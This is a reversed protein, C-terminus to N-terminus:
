RIKFKKRPGPADNAEEIIWGGRDREVHCLYYATKDKIPNFLSRVIGAPEMISGWGVIEYLDASQPCNRLLVNYPGPEFSVFLDGERSRGRCKWTVTSECEKLTGASFCRVLGRKYIRITRHKEVDEQSPKRPNLDHDTINEAWFTHLTEVKRYWAPDRYTLTGWEKGYLVLPRASSSQGLISSSAIDKSEKLASVTRIPNEIDFWEIFDSRNGLKGTTSGEYCSTPMRVLPWKFAYSRDKQLPCWELIGIDGTQRIIFRTVDGCIENYTKNYTVPFLGAHHKPTHLMGLVSFVHDHPVSAKFCKGQQLLGLLDLGPPNKYLEILSKLNQLADQKLDPDLLKITRLTETFLEWSTSFYPSCIKLSKAAFVEQRVWTREFWTYNLILKWLEEKHSSCVLIEVDLGCQKDCHRAVKEIALSEGLWVVVTSAKSYISRMRPIQASKEREDEQNICLFDIWVYREDEPQRFYRLAADLNGRLLITTADCVCEISPLSNRWAYSLADYTVITEHNLVAGTSLDM